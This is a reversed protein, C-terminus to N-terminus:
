YGYFHWPHLFGFGGYFPHHHHHHYFGYGYPHYGFGMMPYGISGFYHPM